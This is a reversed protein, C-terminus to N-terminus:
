RCKNVNNLKTIRIRKTNKQILKITYNHPKNSKLIAINKFLESREEVVKEIGKEVIKNKM